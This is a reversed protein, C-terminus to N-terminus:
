NSTVVAVVAAIDQPMFNPPLKHEIVAFSCFQILFQDFNILM